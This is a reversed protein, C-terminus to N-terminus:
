RVGSDDPHVFGDRDLRGRHGTDVWDPRGPLLAQLRGPADAPLPHGAADVARLAVGPPAQGLTGPKHGVHHVDGRQYDATSAALLGLAPHELRPLSPDITALPPCAHREAARVSLAQMAQRVAFTTVPPPLPPGFVVLVRRRGRPRQDASRGFSFRSGWLNGLYVPVVPVADRGKLIVELGRYFSGLFGTRSLQAEPFIGVLEGRDLAARTAEIAARQGRPGKSPVPILGARRAITRLVPVDIYSANVLAKGHRPCAAALLFGDIWTVHNAALLGPGSRPIHERGVVRLDYCPFLLLRILPQVVWPLAAVFLAAAAAVGVLWWAWGPMGSM